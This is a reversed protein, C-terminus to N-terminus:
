FFFNLIVKPIRKFEHPLLLNTFDPLRKGKFLFDVFQAYMERPIHEYGFSDFNSLNNGNVYLDIWHTRISKYEELNAVHAVDKTIHYMIEHIFM